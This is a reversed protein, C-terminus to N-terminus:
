EVNFFSDDFRSADENEGFTGDGDGVDFSGFDFNGFDTLNDFAMDQSQQQEQQEQETAGNEGAKVAEADADDAGDGDGLGAFDPMNSDEIDDGTAEDPDNAYSELGPLLSSIDEQKGENPSPNQANFFSFSFDSETANPKTDTTTVVTDGTDDTPQAEVVAEAEAEAEIKAQEGTTSPQNTENSGKIPSASGPRTTSASDNFLSDFDLGGTATGPDAATTPQHTTDLQLAPPTETQGPRPQESRALQDEAGNSDTKPMVEDPTLFDVDASVPTAKQDNVPEVVSTDQMEVDDQDHQTRQASELKIKQLGDHGQQARLVHLDRRMIASAVALETELEDLADHFGTMAPPLIQKLRMGHSAATANGSKSADVLLRATQELVQNLMNQLQDLQAEGRGTMAM